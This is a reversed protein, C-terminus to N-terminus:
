YFEGEEYAPPGPAQPAPAAAAAADKDRPRVEVQQHMTVPHLYCFLQYTGPVDFTRRYKSGRPLTASGFARPGNATSVKHPIRDKFLWTVTTGEAISLNERSFTGFVNVVPRSSANPFTFLRGRPRELTVTRGNRSLTTLPVRVVPPDERRPRGIKLNRTDTPLGACRAASARGSAIYVHMVGMVGPHPHEADYLATLKLREGERVSIGRRSLWWTTNFPGPEHLAPRVKYVVDRSPAYSPDSAFLRRDDCGPQSLQLNHAGGHLHSGGAVIRGTKPVTWTNSRRDVSGPKGGGPVTYSPDNRCNTVRVWYPSVAALRRGTVVRMRYEVRVRQSRNQHSMLMTQMRWRDGPRSRYGYGAPLRLSENEEGTGFFPEGFRPGCHTPRDGPYRGQNLFVVHHLMVNRISLRRGRMDVMYASMRTIYGDASPNGVNVKPRETAFAGVDFPESRMVVTRAAASAPGAAIAPVVVAALLVAVVTWRRVRARM